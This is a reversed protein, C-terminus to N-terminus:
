IQSRQGRNDIILCVVYLLRSTSSSPGGKVVEGHGGSHDHGSRSLFYGQFHIGRGLFGRNVYLIVWLFPEKPNQENEACEPGSHFPPLFM